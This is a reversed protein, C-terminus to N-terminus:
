KVLEKVTKVNFLKKFGQIPNLANLNPKLGESAIAFRTQILTILFGSCVCVFFFSFIIEFFVNM